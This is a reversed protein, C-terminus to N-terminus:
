RFGRRRVFKLGGNEEFPYWVKGYTRSVLARIPASCANDEVTTRHVGTPRIKHIMAAARVFTEADNRDPPCKLFHETATKRHTDQTLMGATAVRCFRDLCLRNKEQEQGGAKGYKSFGVEGADIGLTGHTTLIRLM